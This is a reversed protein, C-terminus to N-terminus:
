CTRGQLHNNRPHALVHTVGRSSFEGWQGSDERFVGVGVVRDYGLTPGITEVDIAAIPTKQSAPHKIGRIATTTM